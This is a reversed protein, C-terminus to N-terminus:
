ACEVAGHREEKVVEVVMGRGEVVVVDADVEAGGVDAATLRDQDEAERVEVGLDGDNVRMHKPDLTGTVADEEEGVVVPEIGAVGAGAVPRVERRKVVETLDNAEVREVHSAPPPVPHEVLEAAIIPHTPSSTNYGKNGPPRRSISPHNVLKAATLATSAATASSLNSPQVNM